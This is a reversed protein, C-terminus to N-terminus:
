AKRGAIAARPGAKQGPEAMDSRWACLLLTTTSVLGLWPLTVTRGFLFGAGM